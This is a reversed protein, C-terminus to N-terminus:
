RKWLIECKRNSIQSKYNTKLSKLGAVFVSVLENSEKILGKLLKNRILQLDVIFEL